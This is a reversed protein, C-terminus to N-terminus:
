HTCHESHVILTVSMNHWQGVIMTHILFLEVKSMILPERVMGAYNTLYIDYMSITPYDVHDRSGRKGSDEPYLDGQHNASPSIVPNGTHM